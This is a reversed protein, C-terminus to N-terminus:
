FYAFPHSSHSCLAQASIGHNSVFSFCPSVTLWLLKRRRSGVAWCVTSQEGQVRSLLVSSFFGIIKWKEQWWFHHCGRFHPYSGSLLLFFTSARFISRSREIEILRRIPQDRAKHTYFRLSIGGEEHVATLLARYDPFEKLLIRRLSM